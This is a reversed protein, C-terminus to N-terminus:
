LYHNLELKWEILSTHYVRKISVINENDLELVNDAIKDRKNIIGSSFYAHIDEIVDEIDQGTTKFILTSRDDLTNEYIITTASTQFIFADELYSM